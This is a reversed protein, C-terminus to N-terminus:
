LHMQKEVVKSRVVVKPADLTLTKVKRADLSPISLEDTARAVNPKV